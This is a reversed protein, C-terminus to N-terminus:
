PVLPTGKIGWWWRLPGVQYCASILTSFTYQDRPVGAARMEELVDLAPELQQAAECAALVSNYVIATAPLGRRADLCLCV